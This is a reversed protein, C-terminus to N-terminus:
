DYRQNSTHLAGVACFRCKTEFWLILMKKELVGTKVTKLVLLLRFFLFIM